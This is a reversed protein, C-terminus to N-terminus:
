APQTPQSYLGLRRLSSLRPQSSPQRQIKGPL